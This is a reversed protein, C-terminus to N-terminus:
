PEKRLSRSYPERGEQPPPTRLIPLKAGALPPEMSAAMPARCLRGVQCAVTHKLFVAPTVRELGLETLVALRTSRQLRAMPLSESYPETPAMLARARAAVQRWATFIEM